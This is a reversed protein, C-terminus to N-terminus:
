PKPAPASLLHGTGGGEREIKEVELAREFARQSEIERVRRGMAARKALGGDLSDDAHSLNFRSSSCSSCSGTKRQNKQRIKM